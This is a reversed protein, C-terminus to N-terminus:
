PKVADREVDLCKVGGGLPSSLSCFLGIQGVGGDVLVSCGMGVTECRLAFMQQKKEERFLM